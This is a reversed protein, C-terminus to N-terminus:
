LQLFPVAEATGKRKIWKQPLKVFPGPNEPDDGGDLPRRCRIVVSIRRRAARDLKDRLKEELPIEIVPFRLFRGNWEM